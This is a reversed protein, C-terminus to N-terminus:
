KELRQHGFGPHQRAARGILVFGRVDSVPEAHRPPEGLHVNALSSVMARAARRALPFGSTTTFTLLGPCSIRKSTGTTPRGVTSCIFLAPAVAKAMSAPCVKNNSRVFNIAAASTAPIAM